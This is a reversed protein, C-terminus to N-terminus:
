CTQKVINTLESIDTFTIKLYRLFVNLEIKLLNINIVPFLNKDWIITDRANTKLM